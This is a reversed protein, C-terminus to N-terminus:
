RGPKEGDYGRVRKEQDAIAQMYTEQDVNAINANRRRMFELRAVPDTPASPYYDLREGTPEPKPKKRAPM